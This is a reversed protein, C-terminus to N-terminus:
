CYSMTSYLILFEFHRACLLYKTAIIVTIDGERVEITALEKLLQTKRISLVTGPMLYNEFISKNVSLDM